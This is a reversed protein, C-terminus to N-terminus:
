RMPRYSAIRILFLWMAAAPPTRWRWRLPARQRAAQRDLDFDAGALFQALGQVAAGGVQQEVVERGGFGGVPDAFDGAAGLDFEGAADRELGDAGVGLGAGVEDGRPAMVCEARAMSM